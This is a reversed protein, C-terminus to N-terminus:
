NRPKRKRGRGKRYNTEKYRRVRELDAETWIRVDVGGAAFRSPEQLTGSLLWRQLTVRNIGVKAAVEKTSFFHDRM